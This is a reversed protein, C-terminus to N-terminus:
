HPGKSLGARSTEDENLSPAQMDHWVRFNYPDDSAICRCLMHSATDQVELCERKFKRQQSTPTRKNDAVFGFGEQHHATVSSSVTQRAVENLHTQRINLTAEEKVNQHLLNQFEFSNMLSAALGSIMSFYTKPTKKRTPELLPGEEFEHVLM